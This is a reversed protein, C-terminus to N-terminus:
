FVTIYKCYTHNTLNIPTAKTTTAHYKITLNANNDVMYTVQVSLEGPYNEDGDPSVINLSIGVFDEAIIFDSATWVYKDFGILGGHLSNPGNNINLLYETNDLIFRGKAIRNAYRGAICGYYPGPKNILEDLSQYCLSIENLDGKLDLSKVSVITAGYNLIKVELQKSILHYSEIRTSHNNIHREEIFAKHVKM